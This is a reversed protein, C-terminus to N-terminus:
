QLKLVFAVSAFQLLADIFLPHDDQLKLPGKVPGRSGRLVSTERPGGPREPPGPGRPGWRLEVVPLVSVGRARLGWVVYQIQRSKKLKYKKM